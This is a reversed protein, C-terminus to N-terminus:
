SYINIYLKVRFTNSYIHFRVTTQFECALIIGLSLVLQSERIYFRGLNSRTRDAHNTVIFSRYYRLVTFLINELLM